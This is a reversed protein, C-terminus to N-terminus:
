RGLLLAWYRWEPNQGDRRYALGFRAFRTDLMNRRHPPSNMWMEFLRPLDMRGQAINEAAAGKIGNGKVRSVFDKGWGTDHVMRGSSAMYSAQQLAARELARDPMLPPLGNASRYGNLISAAAASAVDGSGTPRMSSCAALTALAGLGALQLFVRRDANAHSFHGLTALHNTMIRPILFIMANPLRASL